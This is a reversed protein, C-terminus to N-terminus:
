FHTFIATHTHKHKLLLSLVHWLDRFQVPEDSFTGVSRGGSVEAARLRRCTRVEAAEALSVSQTHTYTSLNRPLGENIECM